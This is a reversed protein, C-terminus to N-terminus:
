PSGLQGREAWYEVRFRRTGERDVYDEFRIERLGRDVFRALEARTLPWPMAGPDDDPERGRCIVLLTGGPAVLEALRDMATRRVEPPLVQLTYIEVVLDFARVWGAPPSTVDAVQYDVCSAPFRRRCWAVATPAVDFAVVAYGRRSLEEADDGLGCGVVLARLAGGSAEVRELWEVLSPNPELDAWQVQRAEGGATAYLEEFWGTADGRALAERALRRGRTRADEMAM